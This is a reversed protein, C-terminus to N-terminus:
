SLGHNDSFLLSRVIDGARIPRKKNAKKELGYSAPRWRSNPISEISFEVELEISDGEGFLTQSDLSHFKGFRDLMQNAAVFRQCRKSPKLNPAIGAQKGFGIRQFFQRLQKGVGM